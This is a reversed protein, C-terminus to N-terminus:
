RTVKRWEFTGSGLPKAKEAKTCNPGTYNGGAKAECKGWELASASTAAIAAIAFVAVLSLGVM